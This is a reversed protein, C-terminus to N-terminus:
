PNNRKDRKAQRKEQPTLRAKKRQERKGKDKKGKNGMDTEGQKFIAQVPIRWLVEDAERKHRRCTLTTTEEPSDLGTWPQLWACCPVGLDHPMRSSPAPRLDQHWISSDPNMRAAPWSPKAKRLSTAVVLFVSTRM